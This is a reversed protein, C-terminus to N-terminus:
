YIIYLIYYRACWCFKNVRDFDERDVFTIENQSLYIAAYYEMRELVEKDTYTPKRITSM